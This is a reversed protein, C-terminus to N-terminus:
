AAKKFWDCFVLQNAANNDNNGFIGIQNPVTGIFTAPTETRVTRYSGSPGSPSVSFTLNTGDYAIQYWRWRLGFYYDAGAASDAVTSNYSTVSNYRNSEVIFSSGNCLTHITILKGSASDRVLLGWNCYATRTINGAVIKAQYTWTSGSIPQTAVHLNVLNETPLTMRFVGDVIDETTSGWNTKTWPTAGARRTGATDLATGVEFHDDAPDPTSSLAGPQKLLWDPASGGTNILTM